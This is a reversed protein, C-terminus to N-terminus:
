TRISFGRPNMYPTYLFHGGYSQVVNVAQLSSRSLHGLGTGKIWRWVMFGGGQKGRHLLGAERIVSQADPPNLNRQRLDVSWDNILQDVTWM